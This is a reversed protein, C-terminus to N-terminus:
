KSEQAPDDPKTKNVLDKAADIASAIESGPPVYKAYKVLDASTFFTNFKDRQPIRLTRMNDVIETTTQELAKFEFRRELYRKLIESLSYYYKKIMGRSLWEDVPIRELALIAEVWPPPLPKALARAKRLKRLYHYALYGLAAIFLIIAGIILPRFNPFRVAGKIDNIDQMDVPLVSAVKVDVRNSLLTDILSDSRMVCRFSSLELEGTDFCVLEYRYLNKIMGGEEIRQSSQDIIMFPELADVYPMSIEMGRPHNVTVVVEFPDGVTLTKNIDKRGLEANIEIQVALLLFIV